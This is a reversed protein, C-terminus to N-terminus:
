RFRFIEENGIYYRGEQTESAKAIMIGAVKQSTVARYSDPIIAGLWHDIKIALDELPRRDPRQGIITFPRFFDVRPISSAAVDREMEGKMRSYFIKSKPNAGIASVVLMHYVDRTSALSATRVPIGYDIARYIERDPTKKKTSGVCVFIHTIGDLHSAIFEDSFLDGVYWQLKPHSVAAEARALVRVMKWTDHLLLQRVVESGVAGTAGLVMARM